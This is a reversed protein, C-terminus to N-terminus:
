EERKMLEADLAWVFAALDDEEEHGMGRHRAWEHIASWPIPGAGGMHYTRCTSLEEWARWVWALSGPLIPRRDWFPTPDGRDIRERLVADNLKEANRRRWAAVEQLAKKGSRGGRGQLM